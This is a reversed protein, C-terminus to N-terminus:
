RLNDFYIKGQTPKFATGGDIAGPNRIVVTGSANDWYAVRGNSLNRVARPNGM